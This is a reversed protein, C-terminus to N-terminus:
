QQELSDFFDRLKSLSDCRVVEGTKLTAVWENTPQDFRVVVSGDGENLLRQCMEKIRQIREDVCCTGTINLM